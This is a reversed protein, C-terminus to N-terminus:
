YTYHQSQPPTEGNFLRGRRIRNAKTRQDYKNQKIYEKANERTEKSILEKFGKSSVERKRRKAAVKCAEKWAEKAKRLDEETLEIDEETDEEEQSTQSNGDMPASMYTSLTPCAKFKYNRGKFLQNFMVKPSVSRKRSFSFPECFSIPRDWLCTNKFSRRM